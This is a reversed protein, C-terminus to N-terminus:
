MEDPRAHHARWARAVESLRADAGALLDAYVLPWPANRGTAAASEEVPRPSVWFKRRVFINRMHEPSSSWRNTIPLRPDLTDIYVTLTTPRAIDVGDASEGSLYIHQDPDPKSIPHSIDGHYQAIELRRGLGTPYAATWYDLLEGTRGLRKSVPDLFGSQQLQALADHAQGVSTGAAHAVERVRGTALEPWALLAFIVQARRSSFMNTPQRGRTVHGSTEPARSDPDTRGQVEVLVGDFEIFANGLTDVFQIGADRLSTASRRTVQSGVMLLPYPPRPIPGHALSSLTMSRTILAAYRARAGARSLTVVADIQADAHPIRDQSPRPSEISLDIGYERLRERVVEILQDTTIAM